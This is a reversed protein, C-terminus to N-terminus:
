IKDRLETVIGRETCTLRIVLGLEPIIFKWKNPAPNVYWEATEEYPKFYEDFYRQLREQYWSESFQRTM